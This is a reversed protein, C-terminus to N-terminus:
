FGHVAEGEPAPPPPPPPPRKSPTGFSWSLGLYLAQSRGSTISVDHLLPTDIVSRARFTHFVDQVNVVAALKDNFKHRYGLFSLFNPDSYGQPTLRRANLQGSLQFIDQPTANWNVSFRGGGEIASRSGTVGLSAALPFDGPDIEAYYVNTSVNYTLEKTLHGNAVLELGAHKSSALNEKTDLFVGNGLDSIVDTFDHSSLRYYATALYFTEGSHYQYGAEFSDTHEPKLDPNGERFNFTDSEIRFPNLDSPNPRQVRRSYSLTLQKDDTWRYNLHLTPYLNAANSDHTLATTVQNLDLQVDEVRLGGLLTFSGLPQEYTV